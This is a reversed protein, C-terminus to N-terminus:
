AMQCDDTDDLLAIGNDNAYGGISLIMTHLVRFSL